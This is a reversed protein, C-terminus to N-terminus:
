PSTTADDRRCVPSRHCTRWKGSHYEDIIDQDTSVARSYDCSQFLREHAVEGHSVHVLNAENDVHNGSYYVNHLNFTLWCEPGGFHYAWFMRSLYARRVCRPVSRFQGLFQRLLFLEASFAYYDVPCDHPRYTVKRLNGAVGDTM